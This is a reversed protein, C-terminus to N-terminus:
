KPCDSVRLRGAKARGGPIAAARWAGPTPAGRSPRTRGARRTAARRGAISLRGVVEMPDSALDVADDFGMELAQLRALEPGIEYWRGTEQWLAAPHVVPM